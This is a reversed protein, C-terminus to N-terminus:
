RRRRVPWGGAAGLRSVHLLAAMTKADRIRGTRVARLADLLRMPVLEIWEDADRQLPAARLDWAAFLWIRETCFGPATFVAGLRRWRWAAFGTEERLERRACAPPLEGPELTGAPFELLWGRAAARFQRILLLEGAATIPAVAVAGPHVITQRRFTRGDPGRWREEDLTFTRCRRVTRSALLTFRRPRRTPMPPM